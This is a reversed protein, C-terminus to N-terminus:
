SEFGSSYISYVDLYRKYLMYCRASASVDSKEFSAEINFRTDMVRGGWTQAVVNQNEDLIYKGQPDVYYGTEQGDKDLVPFYGAKHDEVVYGDITGDSTKFAYVINDMQKSMEDSKEITFVDTDGGKIHVVPNITGEEVLSGIGTGEYELLAHMNLNELSGTLNMSEANLIDQELTNPDGCSNVGDTLFARVKFYGLAIAICFVACIAAVMYTKFDEKRKERAREEKTLIKKKQQQNKKKMDIGKKYEGILELENADLTM